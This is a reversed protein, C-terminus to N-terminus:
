HVVVCEFYQGPYMESTTRTREEDADCVLNLAEEMMGPEIIGAISALSARSQERTQYVAICCGNPCHGAVHGFWGLATNRVLQEVAFPSVTKTM